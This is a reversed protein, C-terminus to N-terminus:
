SARPRSTVRSGLHLRHHPRPGPGSYRVIGPTAPPTRWVGQPSAPKMGLVSGGAALECERLRFMDQVDRHTSAAALKMKTEIVKGADACSVTRIRPVISRM